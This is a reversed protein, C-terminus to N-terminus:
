SNCNYQMIILNCPRSFISNLGVWRTHDKLRSISKITTFYNYFILHFNMINLINVRIEELDKLLQHVQVTLSSSAICSLLPSSFFFLSFYLSTTYWLKSVWFPSSKHISAQVIESEHRQMTHLVNSLAHMAIHHVRHYKLLVSLQSSIFYFLYMPPVYM